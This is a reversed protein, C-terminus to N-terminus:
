APSSHWDSKGTPPGIRLWRELDELSRFCHEKTTFPGPLEPSHAAWRDHIMAVWRETGEPDESTFVAGIHEGKFTLSYCGAGSNNLAFSM